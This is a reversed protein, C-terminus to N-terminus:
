VVNNVNRTSGPFRHFIYTCGLILCALWADFREIVLWQTTTTVRASTYIASTTAHLGCVPDGTAITCSSTDWTIWNGHKTYTTITDRYVISYDRTGQGM